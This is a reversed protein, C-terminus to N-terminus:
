HDNLQFFPFICKVFIHEDFLLGEEKSFCLMVCAPM